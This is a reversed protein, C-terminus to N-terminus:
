NGVVNRSPSPHRTHEPTGRLAEAAVEPSVDRQAEALLEFGVLHKRIAASRLLPPYFHLHLQWEPHDEGDVPAPHVGMSYPFTVQYLNDYRIVLRRIIDALAARELHSLDNLRATPQRGVVLTEYPWVAWYPVVAVFHDNRCVVREDLHLELTVYDCLLTHGRKSHYDLQAQQEVMVHQPIYDTAWAQGHPHPSSAGMMSGRNEFIQVHRIYPYQSFQACLATWANIVDIIGAPEFEGLSLDHRPSYCVVSCLGRVSRAVLLPDLDSSDVPADPLLAPYDNSFVFTGTYNPNREGSARLNGPCLHCTVDHPPRSEHGNIEQLGNWPRQLRQPSVLM